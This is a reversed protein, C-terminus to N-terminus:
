DHIPHYNRIKPKHCQVMFPENEDFKLNQYAGAPLCTSRKEQM